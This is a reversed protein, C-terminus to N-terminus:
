TDGGATTKLFLTLVGAQCERISMGVHTLLGFGDTANLKRDLVQAALRVARPQRIAAPRPFSLPRLPRLATGCDEQGAATRSNIGRYLEAVALISGAGYPGGLLSSM